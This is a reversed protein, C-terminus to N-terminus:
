RLQIATNNCISDWERSIGIATPLFPKQWLTAYGRDVAAFTLILLVLHCSAYLM